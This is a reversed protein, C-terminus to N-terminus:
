FHTFISKIFNLVKRHLYFKNKANEIITDLKEIEPKKICYFVMSSNTKEVINNQYLKELLTETEKYFDSNTKYTGCLLYANLWIENNKELENSFIKIYERIWIIASLESRSTVIEM